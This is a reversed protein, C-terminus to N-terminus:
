KSCRSVLDEHTLASKSDYEHFCKTSLSSRVLNCTGAYLMRAKPKTASGRWMFLAIDESKRGDEHTYSLKQCVYRNNEKTLHELMKNFALESDQESGDDEHEIEVVGKKRNVKLVLYRVLTAAFLLWFDAFAPCM